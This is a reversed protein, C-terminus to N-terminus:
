YWLTAISQSIFSSKLGLVSLEKVESSFHFINNKKKRKTEKHNINIKKKNKNNSKNIGRM